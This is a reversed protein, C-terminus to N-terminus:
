IKYMINSTVEGHCASLTPISVHGNSAQSRLVINLVPKLCDCVDLRTWSNPLCMLVGVWPFLPFHNLARRRQLCLCSLCSCVACFSMWPIIWVLGWSKWVCFHCHLSQNHIFISKPHCWNLLTPIQQTQQHKEVTEVMPACPVKQLENPAIIGVELVGSGKQSNHFYWWPWRWISPPHAVRTVCKFYNQM